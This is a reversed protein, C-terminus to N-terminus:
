PPSSLGDYPFASPSCRSNVLYCHGEIPRTETPNFEAAPVSPSTEHPFADENMTPSRRVFPKNSIDSYSSVVLTQRNARLLLEPLTPSITQHVRLTRLCQRTAETALSRALLQHGFLHLITSSVVQIKGTDDVGSAKPRM